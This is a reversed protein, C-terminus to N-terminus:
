ARFAYTLVKYALRAALFDPAILGPIPALEVLDFGVIRRKRAVSRVLDIVEPWFLGGPEPTGVSPMIGPDFVDLDITLYVHESLRDVLPALWSRHGSMDRALLPNLGRERIFESEERSFSRLGAAVVPAFELARRMVCAHSYP